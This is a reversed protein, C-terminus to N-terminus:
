PSWDISIGTVKPSVSQAIDTTLIVRYRFYRYGSYASYNTIPIPTNPISNVPNQPYTTNVTGDYGTFTWPGSSSNSAAFQFAVGCTACSNLSGQWVLSNLQAGTSSTDFTASDLMGITAVPIWSTVVSYNSTGCGSTNSCNFSIWGVVDNWAWGSFVGNSISVGYNSTGCGGTNQCSFSIWGVSDNWAWGSLAGTGNNVVKYNSNQSSCINGAPSTACDLSVSGISSDAYGTLQTPTVNINGTSYFNIWGVLDNWAWHATTTASINTAAFASSPLFLFFIIFISFGIMMGVGRFVRPLSRRSDLVQFLHIQIGAEAPVVSSFASSSTMRAPVINKKKRYFLLNM